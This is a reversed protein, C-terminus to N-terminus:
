VSRCLQHESSTGEKLYGNELDANIMTNWSAVSDPRAVFIVNFFTGFDQPPKEEEKDGVAAPGEEVYSNKIGEHSQFFELKEGAAM